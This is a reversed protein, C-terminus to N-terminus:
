RLPVMENKSISPLFFLTLSTTSTKEQKKVFKEKYLKQIIGTDNIHIYKESNNGSGTNVPWTNGPGCFRTNRCLGM